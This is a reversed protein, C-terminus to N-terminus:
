CIVLILVKIIQKKKFGVAQFLAFERKQEWINRYAVVGIGLTGILIGFSGLILFISLYTNEIKNFESLREYTTSLNLGFDQMSYNLQDKIKNIDVKSLEAIFLSSGKVSPFKNLFNSESILVNGQFISNELGAVLVIFLENGSDDMYKLTDGISKGLQWQIVSADAIGPIVNDSFKNILFQGPIILM